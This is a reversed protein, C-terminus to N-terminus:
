RGSTGALFDSTTALKWTKAGDASMVLALHHYRDPYDEQYQNETWYSYALFLRGRRDITLKHYYISYGPVPPVM